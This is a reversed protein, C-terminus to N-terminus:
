GHQQLHCYKRRKKHSLLLENHTHTHKGEGNMIPCLNHRYIKAITFLAAIFLATYIAKQILIKM